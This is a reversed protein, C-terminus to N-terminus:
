RCVLYALSQLESTHEESRRGMAKPMRDTSEILATTTRSEELELAREDVRLLPSLTAKASASAPILLATATRELAPFSLMCWVSRGAQLIAPCHVSWAVQFSFSPPLGATLYSPPSTRHHAVNSALLAAHFTVERPM